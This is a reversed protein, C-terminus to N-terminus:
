RDAPADASSNERLRHEEIKLHEDLMKQAALGVAYAVAFTVAMATLAREIVTGLGNGAELGGVLLCVAFALLAMVASLRRALM